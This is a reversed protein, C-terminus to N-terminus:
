YGPNHFGKIAMTPHPKFTKTGMLMCIQLYNIERSRIPALSEAVNIQKPNFEGIWQM